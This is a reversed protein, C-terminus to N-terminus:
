FATGDGRRRVSFRVRQVKSSKGLRKSQAEVWDEEANVETERPVVGNQPQKAGAKQGNPRRGKEDSTVQQTGGSPFEKEELSTQKSVSVSSGDPSRKSVSGMGVDRHQSGSSGGSGGRGGGSTLAKPAFISWM